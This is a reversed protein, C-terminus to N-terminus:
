FDRGLVPRVGCLGLFNATVMAGQMQLPEDVGTLILRAGTFGAFDQIGKSRAKWDEFRPWSTVDHDFGQTPNRVWVRVLAEPRRYPLGELLVSKVVSFLASNVGIGLALTAMAVITFWPNRRFTRLAYKLDTMLMSLHERPSNFVIGAAAVAMCTLRGAMHKEALLQSKFVLLIEREYDDRFPAPYLRLLLRYVREYM